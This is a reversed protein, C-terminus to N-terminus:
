LMKSCLPSFRAGLWRFRIRDWHKLFTSMHIANEMTRIKLDKMDTPKEVARKSNNINFYGNEWFSLGILGNNAIKDLSEQGIEGDLVKLATERDKFLYPLDFALFDNVFGALPATSVLSVDISGMQMGEILDRENGLQSSPFVDMKLAGM